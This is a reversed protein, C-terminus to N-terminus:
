AGEGSRREKASGFETVQGSDAEKQDRAVGAEAPKL